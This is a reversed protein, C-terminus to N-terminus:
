KFYYYYNGLSDSNKYVNVSSYEIKLEPAKVPQYAYVGSSSHITVASRERDIDVKTIGTITQILVDKDSSETPKSSESSSSSSYSSSHKKSSPGFILVSLIMIIVIVIMLEILTFGKKNLM